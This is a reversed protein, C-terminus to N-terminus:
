KGCVKTCPTGETGRLMDAYWFFVDSVKLLDGEKSNERWFEKYYFLCQELEQALLIGASIGQQGAPADKARTGEQAAEGYGTRALLQEGM